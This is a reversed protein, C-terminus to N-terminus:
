GSGCMEATSRWWWPAVGVKSVQPM